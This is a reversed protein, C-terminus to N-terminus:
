PKVAAFMRDAIEAATTARHGKSAVEFEVLGEVDRVIDGVTRWAFAVRDPISVGLRSELDTVLFVVDLSDLPTADTMDDAEAFIEALAALVIPRATM